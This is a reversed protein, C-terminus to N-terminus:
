KLNLINKWEDEMFGTLQKSGDIVLFPFAVRSEPFNNKLDDKVQNKDEVPLLDVYVYRYQVNNNDLFNLARRCHGCTSLAYVEVDGPKHSGDVTTFELKEIM